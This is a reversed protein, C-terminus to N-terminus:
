ESMLGVITFDDQLEGTKRLAARQRLAAVLDEGRHEAVASLIAEWGAYKWVGDSMALVVWPPRLAASFPVFHAARTGVPPDKWQAATLIEGAHDADRYFVASDGTSAGCICDSGACFAALTSFSASRDDHVAQDAKHLLGPWVSPLLLKGASTALAADLCTRCALRAALAAGGRGGQGDAVACLQYTFADPHPRVDFADENDPHGGPESHSFVKIM